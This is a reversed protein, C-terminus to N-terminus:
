QEDWQNSGSAIGSQLREVVRTLQRKLVVLMQQQYEYDYIILVLLIVRLLQTVATAVRPTPLHGQVVATATRNRCLQLEEEM